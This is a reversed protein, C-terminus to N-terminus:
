LYFKVEIEMKINELKRAHAFAKKCFRHGSVTPPSKLVGGSCARNCTSENGVMAIKDPGPGEEHSIDAM